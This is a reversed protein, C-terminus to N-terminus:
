VRGSGQSAFAEQLAERRGKAATTGGQGSPTASKVSVMKARASKAAQARQQTHDALKQAAQSEQSSQWVEDTMRVAYKYAGELDQALGTQLIESMKAKVREDAFYPHNVTDAAFKAVMDNISSDQQQKFFQELQDVRRQVPDLAQRVYQSPDPAITGPQGILAGLDVGYDQALRAFMQHKQQPSGMALTQHATGLNQIWQAPNINHRQLEPMFPEIAQRLTRSQDAEQKYTSVGTAYERERQVIYEALKPDANNWHEDLEKKWSSPKAPRVSTDVPIAATTSAVAAEQKAFKGDDARARVATTEIPATDADSDRHQDIADMLADRRSLPQGSGDIETIVDDAM